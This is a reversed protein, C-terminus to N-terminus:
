IKHLSRTLLVVGIVCAIAIVLRVVSIIQFLTKIDINFGQEQQDALVGNTLQSLMDAKNQNLANMESSDGSIGVNGSPIIITGTVDDTVSSGAPFVKGSQIIVTSSVYDKISSDAMSITGGNDAPYIEASEVSYSIPMFVALIAIVCLVILAILRFAYSKLM